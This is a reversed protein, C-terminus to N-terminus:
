WIRVVCSTFKASCPTPAKDKGSLNIQGNAVIKVDNCDILVNKADHRVGTFRLCQLTQTGFVSGVLAGQYPDAATGAGTESETIGLWTQLNLINFGLLGFDVSMEGPQYIYQIAGRSISSFISTLQQSASMVPGADELHGLSAGTAEVLRAGANQAIAVKYKLPMATAVSGSVQNLETGGSGQLMVFDNNAFSTTAGVTVATAGVAASTTLTQDGGGATIRYVSLDTLYRFLETGDNLRPM